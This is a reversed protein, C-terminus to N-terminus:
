ITFRSLEEELKHSELEDKTPHYGEGMALRELRLEEAVIAHEMNNRDTSLHVFIDRFRLDRERLEHLPRMVEDLSVTPRSMDTRHWMELTITLNSLPRVNQAIFDVTRIWDDKVRTIYIPSSLVSLPFRWTVSRLMPICARPISTLFKSSEPYWVGQQRIRASCPGCGMDIPKWILGKPAPRVHSVDVVFNNRSFFIDTSIASIHRSVLFLNVPLSWCVGHSSNYSADECCHYQGAWTCNGKYFCDNLGYGKLISSIVPGPAILDTHELIVYQIETPLDMFRFPPCPRRETSPSCTLRKLLRIVTQHLGPSKCANTKILVKKLVPLELMSGFVKKAWDITDLPKTARDRDDVQVFHVQLCLTLHSPPSHAGLKICAERWYHLRKDNELKAEPRHLISPSGDDNAYELGDVQLIDLHVTLNRLSSWILTEGLPLPLDAFHLRFINESWFVSLADRSIEESAYHFLRKPIWQPVPRASNEETWWKLESIPTRSIIGIDRYINCRTQYPLQLFSRCTTAIAMALSAPDRQVSEQNQM